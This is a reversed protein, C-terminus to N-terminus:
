GSATRHRPPPPGNASSRKRAPIAMDYARACHNRIQEAASGFALYLPENCPEVAVLLSGLSCDRGSVGKGLLCARTACRAPAKKHNWVPVDEAFHRTTRTPCDSRPVRLTVAPRFATSSRAVKCCSAWLARRSRSRQQACFVLAQGSRASRLYQDQVGPDGNEYLHRPGKRHGRVQGAPLSDYRNPCPASVQIAHPEPLPVEVGPGVRQATARSM